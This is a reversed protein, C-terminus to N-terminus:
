ALTDLVIPRPRPPEDAFEYAALVETAATAASVADRAHIAAITEGAHRALLEGHGAALQALRTEVGAMLRSVYGGAAALVGALAPVDAVQTSLATM